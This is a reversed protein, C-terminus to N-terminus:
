LPKKNKFKCFLLILTAIKLAFSSEEKILFDTAAWIFNSCETYYNNYKINLDENTNSGDFKKSELIKKPLVCLNPDIINQYNQSFYDQTKIAIKDLSNSILNHFAEDFPNQMYFVDCKFNPRLVVKLLEWNKMPFREIFIPPEQRLYKSYRGRPNNLNLDGLWFTQSKEYIFGEIDAQSLLFHQRYNLKRATENEIYHMEEIKSRSGLIFTNSFGSENEKILEEVGKYNEDHIEM